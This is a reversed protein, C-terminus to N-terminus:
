ERLQLTELRSFKEELTTTRYDPDYPLPTAWPPGGEADSYDLGNPITEREVLRHRTERSPEQEVLVADSFATVFTPAVSMKLSVEVVAYRLQSCATCGVAAVCSKPVKM